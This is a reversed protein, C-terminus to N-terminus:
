REPGKYELLAAALRANDGARRVAVRVFQNGLGFYDACLRIMIRHRRFLYDRLAIADSGEQMRGLIYNATSPFPTLFTTKEIAATLFARQRAIFSVTEELFGRDNELATRAAQLAPYNLSWPEQCAALRDSLRNGAALFGCRLGALAYIKTLSRLVLLNDLETVRGALSNGPGTFDIFAEDLVCVIGAAGLERIVGELEARPWLAGTPNAPNCIFVIDPRRALTQELLGTVSLNNGAAWSPLNEVRCSVLQLARDYETFTPTWLVARGPRLVRALLYILATSGNGVLINGVDLGLKRAAARRLSRGDIEPYHQLHGLSERLVEAVGPPLGLPNINASFDVIEEIGIGAAAAQQFIGGGHVPMGIDNGTVTGVITEGEVQFARLFRM